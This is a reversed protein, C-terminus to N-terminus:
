VQWVGTTGEFQVRLEPTATADITGYVWGSRREDPDLTPRRGATFHPYLDLTRGDVSVGEYVFARAHGEPLRGGESSGFVRIDNTGRTNVLASESNLTEYNGINVAPVERPETAENTAEVRFLVFTRDTPADFADTRPGEDFSPRRLVLRDTTRSDTVTIAVAGDFTLGEGVTRDSRSWGGFGLCGALPMSCTM